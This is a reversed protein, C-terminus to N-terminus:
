GGGDCKKMKEIQARSIVGIAYRLARIKAIGNEKWRMKKGQSGAIHAGPGVELAKMGSDQRTKGKYSKWFNTKQTKAGVAGTEM